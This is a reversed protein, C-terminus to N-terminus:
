VQKLGPLAGIRLVAVLMEFLVVICRGVSRAFAGRSIGVDVCSRLPFCSSFLCVFFCGAVAYMNDDLLQNAWQLRYTRPNTPNPIKVRDTVNVFALDFLAGSKNFPTQEIITWVPLPASSSFLLLLPLPLLSHPLLCFQNDFRTGRSM